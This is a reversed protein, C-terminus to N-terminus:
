SHAAWEPAGKAELRESVQMEYTHRAHDSPLLTEIEPMLLGPTCAKSLQQCGSAV